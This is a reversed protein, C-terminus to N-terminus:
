GNEEERVAPQASGEQPNGDAGCAEAATPGGVKSAGELRSIKKKLEEIEQERSQEREAAKQRKDATLLRVIRFIEWLIIVSCPVIVFCIVGAPTKFSTILLGLFYSQGTVKGIIYDPGEVSTDVTQVMAESGESVNDGRLSITYGGGENKEIDVIRHTVTEQKGTYAYKFTLVDGVRLSAYWQNAEEEGDPVTSIFVLSKVPISKIEYGSVDTASCQEMSSSTIVRLQYGFLNATGDADRESLAAVAICFACLVFFVALLLYILIKAIIKVTRKSKMANLCSM